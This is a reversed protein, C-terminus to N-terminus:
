KMPTERIEFEELLDQSAKVAEVKTVKASRPGTNMKAEFQKVAEEPGEAELEVQGSPLNRAWGKIALQRATRQTFERFGVGQVTGSILLHIRRFGPPTEVQPLPAAEFVITVPTGERPLLELNAKYRNHVKAADELPNQLLVTADLQHVSAINKTTVAQLIPEGTDPDRSERSGTFAWDLEQLPKNYITDLVFSEARARQKGKAGTWEVFIRVGGGAPLIVKGDEESAPHGARIGIRLLARHLAPIDVPCIFLCEYSKGGPACILYEIAGKLEAYVDQKAVRGNFTIRRAQEDVTPLVPPPEAAKKGPEAGLTSWTFALGAGALFLLVAARLARPKIM